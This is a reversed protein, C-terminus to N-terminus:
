GEFRLGGGRRKKEALGEDLVDVLQREMVVSGGVHITTSQDVMAGGVGAGFLGGAGGLSAGSLGGPLAAMSMMRAADGVVGLNAVIGGALGQALWAGYQATIRSPSGLGLAKGIPGLLERFFEGVKSFIWDKMSVLGNWVGIVLNKGVHLLWEHAGSFIRIIHGPLSTLFGWLAPIAAGVGALMSQGGALFARFLTPGLNVLANWALPALSALVDFVRQPLTIWFAIVNGLAAGVLGPLANFFAGVRGPLESAFRSVADVLNGFFGVVAGVVTGTASSVTEWVRLVTERFGDFHTWAYILGGVLAAIAIVVLGIPNAAMAANLAWFGASIAPLISQLFAITRFAVFGTLLGALLPQLVTAHDAVFGLGSRLLDLPSLFSPIVSTLDRFVPLFGDRFITWLDQAVEIVATIPGILAGTNGFMNDIVEAAGGAVDDGSRFVAFLNGAQTVFNGLFPVVGAVSTRIREVIEPLRALYPALRDNAAQALQEAMPILGQGIGTGLEVARGKLGRWQNALSGSTRDLDGNADGLGKLILQHRVMVKQAETLEGTLGMSAAQARMTADSLFIGFQRLPEAEGALGSRLAEFVEGPERNYFSGLDLGAKALSTSFKDLDAAPMGAAKGFVGFTSTADQMAETTLGFDDVMKANFRAVEAAAPGFVTTFKSATEGADMGLNLMKVGLGGAAVSAAGLGAAAWKGVDLAVGMVHKGIRSVREGFSAWHSSASSTTGLTTREVSRTHDELQNLKRRVDDVDARYEITETFDAM